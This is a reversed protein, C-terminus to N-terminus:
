TPFFWDCLQGLRVCLQQIAASELADKYHSDPFIIQMIRRQISELHESLYETTSYFWAPCAYELVSRVYIKYFTILNKQVVCARKLFRVLYVCRVSKKVPEIQKLNSSLNLGLLKWTSVREIPVNIIVIDDIVPPM